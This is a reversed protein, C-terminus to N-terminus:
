RRRVHAYASTRVHTRSQAACRHHFVDTRALMLLLKAEAGRFSPFLSVSLPLCVPSHSLSLSLFAPSSSCNQAEPSRSFRPHSIPLELPPLLLSSIDAGHYGLSSLGRPEVAFKRSLLAIVPSQRPRSVRRDRPARPWIIENGGRPSTLSASLAFSTIEISKQGEFKTM